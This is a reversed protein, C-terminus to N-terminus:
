DLCRSIFAAMLRLSERSEPLFPVMQFVHFMGQWTELNADVRATQARSVLRCAEDVLIEDTGVQIQLPPLGELDAFLPSILPDDKPHEGAYFDAYSALIESSLIPDDGANSCISASSLTLDVWPSLCVACAPIPRNTNRLAILMSLCLGGGASDGAVAIRKSAFGESLLWDYVCLADELAAPYPHEPALRYNVALVKKRTAAAFRGLLGRHIEISGLAFAGGHLYLAVGDDAHPSKLWAAQIGKINVPDFEIERPLEFWTASKEQRARQEQISGKAWSYPNLHLLRKVFLAQFSPM